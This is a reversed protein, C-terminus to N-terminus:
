GEERNRIGVGIETRNNSSNEEYAVLGAIYKYLLVSACARLDNNGIFVKVIVYEPHADLGM